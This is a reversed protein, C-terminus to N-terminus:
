RWDGGGRGIMERGGREVEEVRGRTGKGLGDRSECVRAECRAALGKGVRVDGVWEEAGCKIVGEVQLDRQGDSMRGATHGYVQGKSGVAESRVNHGKDIVNNVGRHV